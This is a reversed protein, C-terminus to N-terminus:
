VHRTASAGLQQRYWAPTPVVKVLPLSLGLPSVEERGGGHQGCPGGLERGLGPERPAAGGVKSKEQQFEIQISTLKARLEENAVQVADVEMDPKEGKSRGKKSM